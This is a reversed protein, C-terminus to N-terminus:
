AITREPYFDIGPIENVGEASRREAEAMRIFLEEVAHTYKEHARFFSFARNMARGRDEDPDLRAKWTTRAAMTRGGGTASKAQTKTEKAAGAAMKEADKAAAEAEAQGFVDGSAEAKEKMREAEEAAKRAEEALRAKEAREEAAKADAFELLKKKVPASIKSLPDILAKFAKDVAAGADAHPKKQAKREAETDKEIKRVQGLFDNAKQAQDETEIKPLKIWEAGADAIERARLELPQFASIDYPIGGGSNHGIGAESTKDIM